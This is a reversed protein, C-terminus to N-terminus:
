RQRTASQGEPTGMETEVLALARSRSLNWTRWDGSERSWRSFAELDEEVIRRDPEDMAPLAEIMVPVADASLSTLYRADFRKGAQMRDVNVRAILAGPNVVNVVLIAAFGTALVGLAFSDRRGRLVTLIFWVLIVSLWAMFITTYLRLETLGFEQTYLYMRQLASAVIVFLLAVMAGSLLGFVREHVRNGARLLWHALLLLPLVLATVTVLEFFGRRAYEAYTLGATEVVRGAGGFLYRVQIAVFALFLADLLGLAVGVEAVGLSLAAPRPLALSEPNSALLAVWLLGAVVWAVFLTLFVHGFLEAVDFGFLDVVLTEFVADAAAFLGGFVLLLPLALFIGRTAALAPGRWRGRAVERWRVEKVM